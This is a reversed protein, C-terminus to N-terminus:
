IRKVKKNRNDEAQHHVEAEAEAVATVAEEAVTAEAQHAQLATAQDAQHAQLATAQDAQLAQAATGTHPEATGTHSHTLRDTHHLAQSRESQRDEQTDAQAM